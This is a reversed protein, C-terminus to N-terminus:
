ELERLFERLIVAAAVEDTRGKQARARKKTGAAIMSQMADRSSYAEDVYYLPIVMGRGLREGFVEIADILPSAANDHRVPVGVIVCGLRESLFARQLEEVVTPTNAFTGRPSATIHLEDAVAFGVRKTGYDVAGIRKGRLDTRLANTIEVIHLM